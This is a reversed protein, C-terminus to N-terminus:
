AVKAQLPYTAWASFLYVKQPKALLKNPEVRLRVAHAELMVGVFVTLRKSVCHVVLEPCKSGM